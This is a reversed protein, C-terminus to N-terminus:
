AAPLVNYCAQAMRWALTSVTMPSAVNTIAVLTADDIRASRTPGMVMKKENPNCAIM